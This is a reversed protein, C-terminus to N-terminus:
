GKVDDLSLDPTRIGDSGGRTGKTSVGASEVPPNASGWWEENLWFFPAFAVRPKIGVAQDRDVRISEFLTRALQNREKQAGANWASRVNTLLSPLASLTQEQEPPPKMTDLQKQIEARGRLYDSQSVARRRYMNKIRDLRDEL